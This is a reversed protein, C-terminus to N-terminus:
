SPPCFKLSALFEYAKKVCTEFDTNDKIYSRALEHCGFGHQKGEFSVLECRNGAERAVKVFKEVNWYPVCEDGTCHFLIMPPLGARMHHVPSIEPARDKLRNAGNIYGTLTTDVVADWLVLADPRCSIKLDEHDDEIKDFLAAAISIHAGASDGGVVIRNPDVGLSRSHSRAWRIATKADKICEFPSTGHEVLTRYEPVVAVFGKKAFWAAQPTMMFHNPYMWGGGGFLIICPALGNHAPPLFLRLHLPGNPTEKYECVRDAAFECCLVPRTRCRKYVYLAAVACMAGLTFMLLNRRLHGKGFIETLFHWM